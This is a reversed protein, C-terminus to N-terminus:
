TVRVTRTTMEKRRKEAEFYRWSRVYYSSNNEYRKREEEERLKEEREHIKAHLDEGLFEERTKKEQNGPEQIHPPPSLPHDLVNKLISCSLVFCSDM